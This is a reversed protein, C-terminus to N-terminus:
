KEGISLVMARAPHHAWERLVCLSKFATGISGVYRDLLYPTSM